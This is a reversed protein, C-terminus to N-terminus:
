LACYQSARSIPDPPPRTLNHPGQPIRTTVNAAVTLNCDVLINTTGNDFGIVAPQAETGAYRKAIEMPGRYLGPKVIITHGGDVVVPQTGAAVFSVGSNRITIEEPYRGPQVRVTDGSTARDAAKQITRFPAESTGPNANNGDISVYYENSASLRAAALVALLVLRRVAQTPIHCKM